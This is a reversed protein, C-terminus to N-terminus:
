NNEKEKEQQQKFFKAMELLKQKNEETLEKSEDLFAYTFDDFTMDREDKEILAPAEKQDQFGENLTVVFNGDISIYLEKVTMSVFSVFDHLSVDECNDLTIGWISKLKFEDIQTQIVFKQRNQDIQDWLNFPPNFALFTLPIDFYTSIKSLTDLSLTKKRGMKLDTIIGRSLKLDKCMKGPSIDKQDCLTVITEYLEAM